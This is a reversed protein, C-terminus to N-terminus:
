HTGPPPPPEPLKVRELTIGYSELEAADRRSENSPLFGLDLQYIMRDLRTRSDTALPLLNTQTARQNIGAVQQRAQIHHFISGRASILDIASMLEFKNQALKFNPDLAIAEQFRTVAASYRGQDMLDLGYCYAMFANFNKTHMQMVLAQEASSLTIGLQELIGMVVDKEITFINELIGSFRDADYSRSANVDAMSTTLHLDAGSLTFGGSVLTNARLLKGYRPITAPDTLGSRGLQMEALLKELQLREVVNLQRVCSLDTIIMEAIGKSLADAEANEESSVFYLVALTNPQIDKTELNRERRIAARLQRAVEQEMTLHYSAELFPKFPDRDPLNVFQKYFKLAFEKKGQEDLSSGAYFYAGGNQPDLKLIVKCMRQAKSYQGLQYYAATTGLLARVDTYTGNTRKDLHLVKLYERLAQENQGEALAKDALRYRSTACNFILGAMLLIIVIKKV